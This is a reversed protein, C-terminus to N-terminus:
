VFKGRGRIEFMREIAGGRVGYYRDHLNITTDGHMPLLELQQGIRLGAPDGGVHGHEESLYLVELGDHGLVQPMGMDTSLAKMGCDTIAAGDHVSIVTVILTLACEFEPRVSRYMGDHFIYSGCELETVGPYTGTVDHTGTGGASVIEVPMGAAVVADRAAILRGMAEEAASRRDDPDQLFVAHGEYGMLGRFALHPHDAIARALTVASAPDQAGCRHMGVDVEVIANLTVRAAAAADGLAACNGADEVAVIVDSNRALQILRAIKLPTVVQNTILIDRIGAEALVEAEGVKACCLGIAGRDLQMKALEPTKHTKFHPRLNCPMDALFAAMRDLNREMRDLDIVLAPTDIQALLDPTHSM